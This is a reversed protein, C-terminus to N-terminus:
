AEDEKENSMTEWAGIPGPDPRGALVEATRAALEAAWCCHIGGTEPDECSLRKLLPLIDLLLNEASIAQTLAAAESASLRLTHRVGDIRAATAWIASAAVFGVIGGALASVFM